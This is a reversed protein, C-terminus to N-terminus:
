ILKKGNKNCRLSRHPQLQLGWFAAISNTRLYLSSRTEFPIWHIPGERVRSDLICLTTPDNLFNCVSRDHDLWCSLYLFLLCRSKTLSLRNEFTVEQSSWLQQDQDVHTWTLTGINTQKPYVLCLIFNLISSDIPSLKGNGLSRVVWRKHAFCCISEREDGVFLFGDCVLCPTFRQLELICLLLRYPQVFFFRYIRFLPYFQRTVM